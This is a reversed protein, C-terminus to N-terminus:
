LGRARKLLNDRLEHLAPELGVTYVHPNLLRKHTPDLAALNSRTVTQATTASFPPTQGAAAATVAGARVLPQLLEHASAAHSLDKIHTADFPDIILPREDQLGGIATEGKQQVAHSSGTDLVPHCIPADQNYVMDGIMRGDSDLYRRTALRGPLTSKRIQESAKLCPEWTDSGPKRTASLKYVGGLAPQDYACALRTGVGFSDIRAQQENLLSSITYEDLDNSAVIKVHELGADDLIKRAQISFWALDGSDIRIGSLRQGRQEMEHGVIAANRTGELVDFTDVLLVCNHPFARAYARFAELEDDFAMVWSHAHTGSVPLGYTKGALVNSTSACGGVIAARSALVGGNPGQARRLGFEAVPRRAAAECVRAAKTAVLSEFNICNLLASEIMQCQMLPGTVRVIPEYPFVATGEPAADIDINLRMNPLTRLFGPDFLKSGDPALISALYDGDEDTFGFGEVLQALQATGCMITYGGAFPNERFHMYFCAELEEVGAAWYGQAM